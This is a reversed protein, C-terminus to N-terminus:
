SAVNAVGATSPRTACGSAKAKAEVEALEEAILADLRPNRALGFVYHVGHTECWAM